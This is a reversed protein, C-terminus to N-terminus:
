RASSRWSRSRVKQLMPEGAPAVHDCTQAVSGSTQSITRAPGRRARPNFEKGRVLRLRGVQADVHLSQLLHRDKRRCGRGPSGHRDRAPDAENAQGNRMKQTLRLSRIVSGQDRM